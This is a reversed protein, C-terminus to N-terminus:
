KRHSEYEVIKESLATLDETRRSAAVVLMALAAQMSGNPLLISAGVEAYRTVDLIRCAFGGIYLIEDGVLVPSDGFFLAPADRQHGRKDINILRSKTYEYMESELIPASRTYRALQEAISSAGCVAGISVAVSLEEVSLILDREDVLIRDLFRADLRICPNNPYSLILWSGDVREQSNDALRHEEDM